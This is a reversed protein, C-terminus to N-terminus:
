LVQQVQDASLAFAIGQAGERIAVNIGILEGNINLLPGGSNGPNISANTQILDRLVENNPMTVERGLGSVIGTSVTNTYGFPHGIAIVTEGEMLDSSTGFSLAKLKRTTSLRLVALDHHADEATITAALESGDALSVTVRDASAVVHHNTVVYGREDVIVGTGGTEKRGWSGKKEAKVSVISARTKQVAEVIPTRRSYQGRAETGAGACVVGVVVVFGVVRSWARRM